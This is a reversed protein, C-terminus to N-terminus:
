TRERERENSSEKKTETETERHRQRETDRDRKEGGGGGCRERDRKKAWETDGEKKSARGGVWGEIERCREGKRETKTARQRGRKRRETGKM